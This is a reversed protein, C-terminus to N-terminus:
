KGRKLGWEGYKFKMPVYQGQQSRILKYTEVTLRETGISGLGILIPNPHKFAAGIFPAEVAGIIPSRIFKVWSFGEHPSDKIAGGLAVLLGAIGGALMEEFIPNRKHKKNNKM